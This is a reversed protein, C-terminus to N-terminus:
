FLLPNPFGGGLAPESALGPRERGALVLATRLSPLKHNNEGTAKEKFVLQLHSIAM